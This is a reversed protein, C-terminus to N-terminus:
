SRIAQNLISVAQVIEAESLSAFGLRIASIEKNKYLLHLPLHLNKALAAKSIELLKLEKHCSIWLALGGLPKTFSVKEPLNEALQNCLFDRRALYIKRTKQLHRNLTGEALLEALAVEMPLDGGSDLTAKLKSLETIIPFPAVVYGARFGPALSKCFSGLTICMGQPDTAGLPLPPNPHFALDYEDTSEVIIFGYRLALDLLVQRRSTSLVVTTPYHNGPNVYLMRISQQQCLQELANVDLGQQDVPVTLLRAGAQQFILNAAYYGPNALM